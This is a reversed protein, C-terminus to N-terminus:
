LFAPTLGLTNIVTDTTAEGALGWHGLDTIARIGVSTVKHRVTETLDGDVVGFLKLHQHHLVLYESSFNGVVDTGLLTQLNNSTGLGQVDLQGVWM